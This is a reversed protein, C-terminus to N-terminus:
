GGGVGVMRVRWEVEGDVPLQQNSVEMEREGEKSQAAVM